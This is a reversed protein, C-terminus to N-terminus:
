PKIRSEVKDCPVETFSESGGYTNYYKKVAFCLSIDNTVRVKAFTLDETFDKVDGGRSGCALLLTTYLYHKM